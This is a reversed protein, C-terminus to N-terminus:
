ARLRYRMPVTYIQFHHKCWSKGEMVKHGCYKTDFSKVPGIIARCDFYKLQMITKNLPKYNDPIEDFLNLQPAPIKVFSPIRETKPRIPRERKPNPAATFKIDPNKTPHTALLKIGQRACMGIVANRTRDVLQKSIQSASWGKAALEQVKKIEEWTWKKSYDM